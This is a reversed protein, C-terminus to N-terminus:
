LLAYLAVVCLAVNGVAINYEGITGINLLLTIWLYMVLLLMVWLEVGVAVVDFSKSAVSSTLLM